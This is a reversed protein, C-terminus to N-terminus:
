LSERSFIYYDQHDSNSPLPWVWSITSSFSGMQKPNIILWYTLIGAFVFWDTDSYWRMPKSRQELESFDAVSKIPQRLQSCKESSTALEFFWVTIMIFSLIIMKTTNCKLIVVQTTAVWINKINVGFRPSSSGMKVLMNKWIPQNLWWASKLIVVRQVGQFILM